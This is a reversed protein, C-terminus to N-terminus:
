RKWRCLYGITRAGEPSAAKFSGTWRVMVAGDAKTISDSLDNWFNTAVPDGDIWHWEGKANRTAGMWIPAHGKADVVPQMWRRLEAIDEDRDIWGIEGGVAQCRARAEKWTIPASVPYVKYYDGRYLVADDPVEWSAAPQMQANAIEDEHTGGLEIIKERIALAGDVNGKRTEDRAHTKLIRIVAQRKEDLLDDLKKKEVAEFETLKDVPDQSTRPLDATFGNLSVGFM